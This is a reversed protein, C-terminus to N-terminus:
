LSLADAAALANRAVIRRAEPSNMLTSAVTVKLGELAVPEDTM